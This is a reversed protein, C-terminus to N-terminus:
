NWWLQSGPDLPFIEIRDLIAPTSYQIQLKEVSNRKMIGNAQLIIQRIYDQEAYGTYCIEIQRLSVLLSVLFSLFM